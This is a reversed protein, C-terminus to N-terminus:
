SDADHECEKRSNWNLVATEPYNNATMNDFSVTAGCKQNDCKFFLFPADIFRGKTVTINSGCFPCKKLQEM